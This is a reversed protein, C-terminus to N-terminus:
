TRTENRVEEARLDQEIFEHDNGDICEDVPSSATCGFGELLALMLLRDLREGCKKCCMM